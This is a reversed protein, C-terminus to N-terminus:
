ELLEDIQAQAAALADDVSKRGTLAAHIEAQMIHSLEPYNKGAAASPRVDGVAFDAYLQEAIPYEEFLADNSQMDKRAPMSGTEVAMKFANEKNTIYKIFEAAAAKNDSYPNVTLIWGGMCVTDASSNGEFYPVRTMGVKGKVPSDDANLMPWVFDQVVMFVARGQRFLAMADNPKYTLISKPAVGDDVMDVMTQLAKKAAATDVTPNGKADFFSGGAGWMFQLYNMFLGEIQAWMSIYGNLDPNQEKATIDEATSILEEWTKPVEYGYKDLLDKRYFFHIANTYLPVGYHEGNLTVANMMGDLYQDFVSSDMYQDLPEAWGNAIFEGPWIVDLALVDPQNDQSAMKTVYLTHQENPVGPVQLWDVKVNPNEAEFGEIFSPIVKGVERPSISFQIEAVGEEKEQAGGAFAMSATLLLFVVCTVIRRLKM